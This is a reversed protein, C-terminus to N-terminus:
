HCAWYQRSFFILFDWFSGTGLKGGPSTPELARLITSTVEPRVPEISDFGNGMHFKLVEFGFAAFSTFPQTSPPGHCSYRLTLGATVIEM